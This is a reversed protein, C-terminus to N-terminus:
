AHSSGEFAAKRRRSFLIVLGVLALGLLSLAAGLRVEWPRYIMEVTHSGEPLYVGRFAVNARHLEAPQGDVRVQWGPNYVDSMVLMAATPAEVQLMIRDNEYQSIQVPPLEGGLRGADQLAQEQDPALPGSLIAEQRLDM